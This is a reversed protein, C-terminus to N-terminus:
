AGAAKDGLFSDGTAMPYSIPHAGSGTQVRHRLSFNGTGAPIRVGVMRDDLWYDIAMGVFSDRSKSTFGVSATVIGCVNLCIVTV